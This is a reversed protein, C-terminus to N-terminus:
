LLYMLHDLSFVHKTQKDVGVNRFTFSITSVSIQNLDFLPVRKELSTKTEINETYQNLDPLSVHRTEAESRKSKKGCGNSRGRGRKVDPPPEM